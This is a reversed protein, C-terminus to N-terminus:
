FIQQLFSAEEKCSQIAWTRCETGTIDRNSDIPPPHPPPLHSASPLWKSELLVATGENHSVFQYLRLPPGLSGNPAAQYGM